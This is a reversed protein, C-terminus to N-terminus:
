DVVVNSSVANGSVSNGTGLDKIAFNYGHWKISFIKNTKQTTLQPDFWTTGNFRMVADTTKAGGDWDDFYGGVVLDNTIPDFSGKIPADNPGGAAVDPVDVWAGGTYYKMYECDGVGLDEGGIWIESQDNPNIAIMTIEGGVIEVGPIPNWTAGNDSTYTISQAATDPSTNDFVGGIYVWGSINFAVSYMDSPMGQYNFTWGTVTSGDYKFTNGPVMQIESENGVLWLDQTTPNIAMQFINLSCDLNVWIGGDFKWLRSGNFQGQFGVYIVGSSDIEIFEPPAFPSWPGLLPTIPQWVGDVGRYAIGNCVTDNIYEFAGVAYLTDDPAWAFDRPTRRNQQQDNEWFDPNGPIPLNTGPTTDWINYESSGDAEDKGIWLVM